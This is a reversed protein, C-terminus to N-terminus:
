WYKIYYTASSYFVTGTTWTNGTIYAENTWTNTSPSTTSTDLLKLPASQGPKHRWVSLTLGKMVHYGGGAASSCRVAILHEGSTLSTPKTTTVSVSYGLYELDAKIANKVTTINNLDSPSLTVDRISGPDRKEDTYGLAYSYCNYYLFASQYNDTVTESYVGQSNRITNNWNISNGLLLRIREALLDLQTYDYGFTSYPNYYLDRLIIQTASLAYTYDQKYAEPLDLGVKLLYDLAEEPSLLMIQDISLEKDQTKAIANIQISCILAMLLMFSTVKRAM